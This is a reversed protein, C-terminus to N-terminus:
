IKQFSKFSWFNKSSNSILEKQKNTLNKTQFSSNLEFPLSINRPKINLRKRLRSIFSSSVQKDFNDQIYQILFKNTKERLLPKVQSVEDQNLKLRSARNKQTEVNMIESNRDQCYAKIQFIYDKSKM